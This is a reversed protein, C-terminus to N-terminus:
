KNLCRLSQPNSEFFDFLIFYCRTLDRRSQWNHTILERHFKKPGVVGLVM